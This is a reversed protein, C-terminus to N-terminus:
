HHLAGQPGVAAPSLACRPYSTREREPQPHDDTSHPVDDGSAGHDLRGLPRPTGRGGAPGLFQDERSRRAGSAAGAIVETTGGGTTSEGGATDVAGTRAETSCRGTRLKSDPPASFFSSRIGSSASGARGGSLARLCSLRPACSVGSWRPQVDAAARQEDEGGQLSTLETHVAGAVELREDLLSYEGARHGGAVPEVLEGPQDLRQGHGQGDPEHCWSSSFPQSPTPANIAKPSMASTRIMTATRTALKPLLVTARSTPCNTISDRTTTILM